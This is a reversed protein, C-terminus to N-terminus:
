VVIMRGFIIRVIFYGVMFISIVVFESKILVRNTFSLKAFPDGFLWHMCLVIYM